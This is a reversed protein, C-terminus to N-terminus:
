GRMAELGMDCRVQPSMIAPMQSKREESLIVRRRILGLGLYDGFVTKSSSSPLGDSIWSNEGDYDHKEGM